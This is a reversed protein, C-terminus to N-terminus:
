SPKMFFPKALLYHPRADSHFALCVIQIAIHSLFLCNFDFSNNNLSQRIGHEPDLELIAMSNQGMNGALHPHMEYLDEWPVCYQHLQRGIIQFPSPNNIAILSHHYYRNKRKPKNPKTAKVSCASELSGVCRSSIQRASAAKPPKGILIIRSGENLHLVSPGHFHSGRYLPYTILALHDLSSADRTHDTLVWAM